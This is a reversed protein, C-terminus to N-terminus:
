NFFRLLSTINSVNYKKLMNQRHKDVTTKAIALNEAIQSSTKGASIQKLIETERKTLSVSGNLIRDVDKLLQKYEKSNLISEETTKAEFVVREGKMVDTMDTVGMLGVKPKGNKNVEIIHSKRTFTRVDGKLLEINFRMKFLVDMPNSSVEFLYQMTRFDIKAIIEQQEEVICNLAEFVTEEKGHFNLNINKQYPFVEVSEPGILAVFDPKDWIIFDKIKQDFRKNEEESYHSIKNFNEFLEDLYNKMEIEIQTKDFL